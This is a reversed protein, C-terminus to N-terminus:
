EVCKHTYKEPKKPMSRGGGELMKPEGNIHEPNVSTVLSSEKWPRVIHLLVSPGSQLTSTPSGKERPSEIAVANIVTGM